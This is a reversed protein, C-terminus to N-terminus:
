WELDPQHSPIIIVSAIKMLLSVKFRMLRHVAPDKQLYNWFLKAAKFGKQRGAPEQLVKYILNKYLYGVSEKKLHQLHTPAQNYAQEIVKLSGDEMKSVNTSASNASIRYLVQPSPIAVFHYRIALKLFMDWDEAHTLSTDFGGVEKMAKSCIMPNSCGVLFNGTLLTPYIDGSLTYCSSMRVYKSNEDISDVCSYAVKADPHEQLAKLQKELKDITWLDDADLFSIFDGVAHTLGRNRNTSVGSHTYTFPKIRPDKISNIVELTSDESSSNIIILEFNAYSQALVSEITERITKESNFTPIIVSILPATASNM